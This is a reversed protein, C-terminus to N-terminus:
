CDIFKVLFFDRNIVIIVLKILIRVVRIVIAKIFLNLWLGKNSMFEMLIVMVKFMREMINLFVVIILLWGVRVFVVLIIVKIVVM